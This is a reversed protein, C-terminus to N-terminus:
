KKGRKMHRRVQGTSRANVNIKVRIMPRGGKTVRRMDLDHTLGCGCCIQTFIEGHELYFVDGDIITTARPM